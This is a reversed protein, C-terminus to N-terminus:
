ENTNVLIVAQSPLVNVGNEFTNNSLLDILKGKFDFQKDESTLNIIVAVESNQNERSFAFLGGKAYISKFEGDIFATNERRIKGLKKYFSLLDEDISDWRFARRNLPDTYGQMGIEDGYYVSPVGYLTYQLLVATKLRNKATEYEEESLYLNSLEEKSKGLTSIGGVASILRYTDHTALINMLVDLSHKPYHDIQEKVTFSLNKCDKSCVFDIIANKLPYNMVSDLEDGIFYERRAGYAIKNTADEWVEGIVVADQNVGKVASRIKKVFNGPLEDVVDLRWGGIGMKTYKELVGDKGTIFDLFGSTKNVAPLTQIGWWSEYEKPYNIFKFWDSYPSDESQYAGKSPYNGYKNFYLSDDGTHNFVGDLIIKIGKKDAEELLNKFDEETGLMSDFQMYDGTDYRHNSFAKFIPNLYIASVGLDKLYDLKETIGKFDGGFFDNNMVQGQANPKFIPTDTWDLHLLRGEEIFKDKDGVNFRDPFIQYIIGGNLWKPSSFYDAFVTLQFGQPFDTIEGVYDKSLGISRGDGLSFWYWYLGRSFSIEKEFFDRKNDMPYFEDKNSGDRRVVLTCSSFEGKVRFTITDSEKIAGTISKCFKDLPNFYM